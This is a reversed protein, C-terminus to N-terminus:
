SGMAIACPLDNGKACAKEAPLVNGGGLSAPKPTLCAAAAGLECARDLFPASLEKNTQNNEPRTLFNAESSYLRALDLCAEPDGDRCGEKLAAAQTRHAPLMDKAAEPALVTDRM